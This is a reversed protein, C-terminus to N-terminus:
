EEELLGSYAREDDDEFDDPFMEADRQFELRRERAYIREQETMNNSPQM